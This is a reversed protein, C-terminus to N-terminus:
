HNQSLTRNIQDETHLKLNALAIKAKHKIQQEPYPQEPRVTAILAKKFYDVAAQEQDHDLLFEGYFYNSAVGNPNIKLATELMEKATKDDGFAIPWQPVKDYLTGLVVYAAGNMVNPNIAIAKTLLNRVEHIADLAAVPNQHEAYAAKILGQWYLIGAENPYTKSLQELQELLQPYVITQQQKPQEYYTKAWTLEIRNLEDKLEDAFVTSSVFLLAAFLLKKMREGSM